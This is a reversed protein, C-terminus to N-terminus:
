FLEIFFLESRRGGYSRARTSCKSVRLARLRGHVDRMFRHFHQRRAPLRLEARFLDMLFTKGRGVGGWLYLGRVVAAHGRSPRKLRALWGGRGAQASELRRRLDELRAVAHEQAADPRYGHHRLSEHNADHLTGRGSM